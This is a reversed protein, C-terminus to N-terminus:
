FCGFADSHTWVRGFVELFRQFRESNDFSYLNTGFNELIMGFNGFEDSRMRIYGFADSRM